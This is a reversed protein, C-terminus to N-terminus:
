FILGFLAQANKCVEQSLVDPTVKRLTAVYSLTHMVYAPENKKGRYGQPALYPTDTELLIRDNPIYSTIEQLVSSKPFTVIGSLSIYYGRDLARKAEEKTGTFCHLMVGKSFASEDLLAFLDDFAERCHIVLPLHLREAQEIYAAFVKKQAEKPSHEYHYDLGTEGIAVLKKDFAYTEIKAVLDTSEKDAEHPTTSCITYLKPYQVQRSLQIGADLEQMNTCVNVIQFVQAEYARKLMDLTRKEDHIFEASIHAHCDIM